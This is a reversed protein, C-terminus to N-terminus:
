QNDIFKPFDSILFTKEATSLSRDFAKSQAEDQGALESTLHM